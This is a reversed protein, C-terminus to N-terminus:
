PLFAKDRGGSVFNTASRMAISRDQFRPSRIDKNRALSMFSCIRATFLAGTRYVKSARPVSRYLVGKGVMCASCFMVVANFLISTSSTSMACVGPHM